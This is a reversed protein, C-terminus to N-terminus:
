KRRVAQHDVGTRHREPESQNAVIDALDTRELLSDILRSLDIRDLIADALETDIHVRRLGDLLAVDLALDHLAHELVEAVSDTSSSSVDEDAAAKLEAMTESDDAFQRQLARALSM